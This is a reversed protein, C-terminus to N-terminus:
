GCGVDDGPDLDGPRAKDVEIKGRRGVVGHQSLNQGLTFGEAATSNAGAFGHLDFKYGGVRGPRQVDTVPAACSIAGRNGVQQDGGAVLYVTLIVDVIGAPLHVYERGANVQAVQVKAALGKGKGAVAVLAVIDPVDAGAQVALM